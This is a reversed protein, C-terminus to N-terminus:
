STGLHRASEVAHLRQATRTAAALRRRSRDVSSASSPLQYWGWRAPRVTLASAVCEARRASAPDPQRRGVSERVRTSPAIAARKSSRTTGTPDMWIVGGHSGGYDPGKFPFPLCTGGLNISRGGMNTGLATCDPM